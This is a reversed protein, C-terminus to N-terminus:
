IANGSGLSIRLTTTAGGIAAVAGMGRVDIMRAAGAPISFDPDGAIVTLGATAAGFRVFAEGSGSNTVLAVMASQGAAPFAVVQATTTVAVSFNAKALWPAIDAMYKEELREAWLWKQITSTACGCEIAIESQTLGQRTLDLVRPILAARDLRGKVSLRGM